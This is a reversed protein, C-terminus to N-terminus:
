VIGFRGHNRHFNNKSLASKRACAADFINGFVGLHINKKNITIRAYFNGNKMYVGNIGTKSRRNYSLNKNNDAQSCVRLNCARNDLTNGNIHDVVLGDIKFGLAVAAVRHALHYEGDISLKVYSINRKSNVLSAYGAKDGAKMKGSSETYFFLGSEPCYSIKDTCKIM